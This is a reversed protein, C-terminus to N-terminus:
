QVLRAAPPAPSYAPNFNIGITGNGNLTATYAIVQGSLPAQAGGNITWGSRPTYTTGIYSENSGGNLSNGCSSLLATPPTTATNFQSQYLVIWDYQVGSFVWTAGQGNENLCDNVGPFYFQVAGPTIQSAICSPSTVPQCYNENALDSGFDPINNNLGNNSNPNCNLFCVPKREGSPPACGVQPGSNPCRGDRVGYLWTSTSFNPVSPTTGDIQLSISSSDAVSAVYGFQNQPVSGCQGRAMYVRYQQAGPVSRSVAVKLANPSGPLNTQYCRSPASERWYSASGSVSSDPYYDQRATTVEVSYWGNGPNLGSSAAVGTLSVTSSCDINDPVDHWFQPNASQTYDLSNTSYNWAPEDPPKLENSTYGGHSTYGGAFQYIGGDMFYCGAGGVLAWNTYTGPKMETWGSHSVTPAPNAPFNSTKGGPYGPDPLIPAGGVRSGLTSGSPCTPSPAVPAVTPDPNYCLLDIGSPVTGSHAFASGAVGLSASGQFSMCGDSYVDGRVTVTTSGSFSMSCGSSSLTLLAPQSFQNGVIASAVGYVPITPATGLVQFFTLPFTHRANAQFVYGNFQGNAGTLTLQYAGGNWNATMTNGSVSSTGGSLTLNKQFVNYAATFAQNQDAFNEYNDGAALTAADVADQLYRRDVYARGSDIALGLMGFLVLLLLAILVIAQGQQRGRRSTSPGTSPM